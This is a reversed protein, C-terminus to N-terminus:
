SFWLIEDARHYGDYASPTPDVLRTTSFDDALTAYMYDVFTVPIVLEGEVRTVSALAGYFHSHRFDRVYGAFVPVSQELPSATHAAEITRVTMETCYLGDTEGELLAEFDAPSELRSRLDARGFLINDEVSGAIYRPVDYTSFERFGDALGDVLADPDTPSVGAFEEILAPDVGDIHGRLAGVTYPRPQADDRQVHDFFAEVTGYVFEVDGAELASLDATLQELPNGENELGFEADAEAATEPTTTAWELAQQDNENEHEGEGEVHDGREGDASRVLLVGREHDIEVDSVSVIPGTAPQLHEAVISDLNQRLVNTGTVRDYGLIENYTAVGGALLGLGSVGRAVLQRRSLEM